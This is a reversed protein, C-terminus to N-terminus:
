EFERYKPAAKKAGSKTKADSFQPHKKLFAATNPSLQRANGQVKAYSYAGKINSLLYSGVSGAQRLGHFKGEPVENYQYVSGDNFEVELVGVKPDDESPEWGVAAVHSSSVSHRDM